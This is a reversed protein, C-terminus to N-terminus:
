RKHLRSPQGRLNCRALGSQRRCPTEPIRQLWSFHAECGIETNPSCRYTPLPRTLLVLLVTYRIREPLMKKRTAM